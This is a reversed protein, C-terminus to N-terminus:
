KDERLWSWVLGTLAVHESSAGEDAFDAQAAISADRARYRYSTQWLLTSSVPRSIEANLGLETDHRGFHDKDDVDPSTYARWDLAAALRLRVGLPLRLGDLVPMLSWERYSLDSGLDPENRSRSRQFECGLGLRPGGQRIWSVAATVGVRKRDRENFAATYDRITGEIGAEKQWGTAGGHMLALGLDSRRQTEARFLPAGPVADKDRRHRGYIQPTHGFRAQFRSSPGLRSRWDVLYRNESRISEHLYQVREYGLRLDSKLGAIRGVDWRAELDLDLVQDDMRDVVFFSGPDGTEFANIEGDSADLLNSDYGGFLGAQVSRPRLEAAMAGGSSLALLAGAVIVLGLPPRM